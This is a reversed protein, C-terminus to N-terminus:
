VMITVNLMRLSVPNTATYPEDVFAVNKRSTTNNNTAALTSDKTNIKNKASDYIREEPTNDDLAAPHIVKIHSTSNYANSNKQTNEVAVAHRYAKDQTM